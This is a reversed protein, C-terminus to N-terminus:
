SDAPVAPAAAPAAPASSGNSGNSGNSTVHDHFGVARDLAEYDASQFGDIVALQQQLANVQAAALEADGADKLERLVEPTTLHYRAFATKLSHGELIMRFSALNNLNQQLDRM